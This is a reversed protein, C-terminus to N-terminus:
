FCAVEDLVMLRLAALFRRVDPMSANRMLWAQCVDPTM